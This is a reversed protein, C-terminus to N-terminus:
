CYHIFPPPGMLAFVFLPSEGGGYKVSNGSFETAGIFSLVTNYSPYIAGGYQEASSNFSNTGHVTNKTM